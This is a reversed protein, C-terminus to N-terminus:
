NSKEKCGFKKINVLKEKKGPIYSIKILCPIDLTLKKIMFLEFDADCKILRHLARVLFFLQYLYIV